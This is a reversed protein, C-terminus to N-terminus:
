ERIGRELERLRAEHDALRDYVPKFDTAARTGTYRDATASQIATMQTQLGSMQVQLAVIDKGQQSVSVGVWSLLAACIVGVITQAHREFVSIEEEKEETM